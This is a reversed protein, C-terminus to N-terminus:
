FRAKLIVPPEDDSFHPQVVYIDEGIAAGTTGQGEFTATGVVRASRWHDDSAYKIVQSSNNSIVALSGDQSWVLGDGGNAPIELEVFSWRSPNDAPVKLLQGTGPSVVLLYGAPHYEIGNINLGSDRGFDYLVSANYYIDVAYIVNMRTDTVYAVGRTSVAVDNAFHTADEPLDEIVSALDIMAIANGSDLEYVGLKAAGTTNSRDSNAVLLRNRAEDAEIGVSAMLESDQVLPRMSGSGSIQYITGDALSGTLIRGNANDYEIGEPIFGGREAVIRDPFSGTACNALLVSCALFFLVTRNNM